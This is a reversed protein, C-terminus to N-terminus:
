WVRKITPADGHVYLFSQALKQLCEDSKVSSVSNDVPYTAVLNSENTWSTCRTVFEDQNVDSRMIVRGLINELKIPGFQTSDCNVDFGSTSTSADEYHETEVWFEDEALQLTKGGCDSEMETLPTALIRRILFEQQLPTQASNNANPNALAVYDGRLVTDASLAADRDSNDKIRLVLLTNAKLHPECAKGLM